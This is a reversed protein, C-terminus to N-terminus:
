PDHRNNITKTGYTRDYESSLSWARHDLIRRTRQILRYCQPFGGKRPPEEHWAPLMFHPKAKYM